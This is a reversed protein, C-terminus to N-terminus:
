PVPIFPLEIPDDDPIYSPTSATVIDEESFMIMDAEPVVYSKKNM